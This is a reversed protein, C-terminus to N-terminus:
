ANHLKLGDLLDSTSPKKMVAPRRMRDGRRRPLAAHGTRHPWAGQRDQPQGGTRIEATRDRGYKHFASVNLALGQFRTLGFLAINGRCSCAVILVAEAWVGHRSPRLAQPPLLGVVCPTAHLPQGLICGFEADM